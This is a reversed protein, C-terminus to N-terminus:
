QANRKRQEDKVLYTILGFAIVFETVLTAWFLINAPENFM